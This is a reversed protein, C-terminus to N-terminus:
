RAGAARQRLGAVVRLLAALDLRRLRAAPVTLQVSSVNSRSRPATGSASTDRMRTSWAIIRLTTPRGPSATSAIRASISSLWSSSRPRRRSTSCARASRRRAPRRPRAPTAARLRVLVPAHQPEGAVQLVVEREVLRERREREGRHLQEVRVRLGVREVDERDDLGDELVRPRDEHGLGVPRARSATACIFASPMSYSSRM